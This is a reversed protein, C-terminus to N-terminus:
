RYLCKIQAWSSDEVPTMGTCISIRAGPPFSWTLAGYTPDDNVVYVNIEAIPNNEDPGVFHGGYFPIDAILGTNVETGADWVPPEIVLAGVMPLVVDYVGTFLDNTRALMTAMSFLDGPNGEVTFIVYDFFPGMGGMQVDYVDPSAMAEAMLDATAGDEALAELGATAYGGPVFMSYGANHVVGVVPTMPQGQDPGSPVVMNEVTITYTTAAAAVALCGVVVAVVLLTSITRM